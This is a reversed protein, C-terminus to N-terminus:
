HAAARHRGPTLPRRRGAQRRAVWHAVTEDASRGQFPRGCRTLAGYAFALRSPLRVQTGGSVHLGTPLDAAWPRLSLVGLSRYRLSYRSPVTFLVGPPSHFLGQFRMGVLLRLGPAHRPSPTGISSHAPSNRRRPRLSLSSVAPAPPFGLGFLAADGPPGPPLDRPPSGFGRSRGMALSFTRYCPSSPRVQPLQLDKPHATPLPSIGLSRPSLQNEGFHRSPCRETPRAPRRSCAPRGAACRLYLV